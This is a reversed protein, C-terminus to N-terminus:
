TGIPKSYNIGYTKKHHGQVRQSRITKRGKKWFIGCAGSLAENHPETDTAQDERIFTINPESKLCIIIDIILLVLPWNERM